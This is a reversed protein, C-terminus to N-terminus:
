ADDSEQTQREGQKEGHLLADFSDAVAERCAPLVTAFSAPLSDLGVRSMVQNLRHTLGADDRYDALFRVEVYQGIFYALKGVDRGCMQEVSAAVWDSDIQAAASYYQDLLRPQRRALEDDLLLEVLIHGLFWPRMSTGEGFAKRLQKSFDLSLVGFAASEHFWADDAHHRCIGRALAALRPDESDLWPEAHRSRCKTRRAAVGLWDPVAVGALECPDPEGRRMLPWAHALYNM